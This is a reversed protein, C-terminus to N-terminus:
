NLRASLYEYKEKIDSDKEQEIKSDIEDKEVKSKDYIRQWSDEDLGAYYNNLFLEKPSIGIQEKHLLSKILSVTLDYFVFKILIFLVLLIIGM